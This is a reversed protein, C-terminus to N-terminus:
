EDIEEYLYKALESLEQQLQDRRNLFIEHTQKIDEIFIANPLNKMTLECIIISSYTEKLEDIIQQQKEMLNEM